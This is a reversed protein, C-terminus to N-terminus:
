RVESNTVRITYYTAMSSSSQQTPVAVQESFFRIICCTLLLYQLIAIRTSRRIGYWNNLKSDVPRLLPLHTGYLLAFATLVHM